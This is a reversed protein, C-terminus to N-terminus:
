PVAARNSISLRGEPPKVTVISIGRCREHVQVCRENERESASIVEDIQVKNGDEVYRDSFGNQRKIQTM